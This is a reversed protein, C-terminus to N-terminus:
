HGKMMSFAALNLARRARNRLEAASLLRQEALEDAAGGFTSPTLVGQEHNRAAVVENRVVRRRQQAYPCAAERLRELASGEGM